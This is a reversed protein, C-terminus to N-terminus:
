NIPFTNTKIESTDHYLVILFNLFRLWTLWVLLEKPKEKYSILFAKFFPNCFTQFLAKLFLTQFVSHLDIISCRM